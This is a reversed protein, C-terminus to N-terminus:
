LIAEIRRALEFDYPSLGEVSHTNVSVRVKGYGIELDPHHDLRDALYAVATAFVVGEQYREFKFSKALKGDEISWGPAQALRAQAEEEELKRYVLTEM